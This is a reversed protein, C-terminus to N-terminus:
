ANFICVTQDSDMICASEVVVLSAMISSAEEVVASTLLGYKTGFEWFSSRLYLVLTEQCRPNTDIPTQAQKVIM